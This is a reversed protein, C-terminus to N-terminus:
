LLCHALFDLHYDILRQQQEKPVHKELILRTILGYTSTWIIQATLEIEMERFQGLEMGRKLIDAMYQISQRENMMGKSLMNVKKQIGEIDTLMIARFQNPEELMLSIFVRLGDILEDMPNAQSQRKQLLRRLITQYGEEAVASVIAEKDEFYHYVIGPSYDIQAAIKRISLKDYGEEVVIRSASDIIKRRLEKKEVERRSQKPLQVVGM